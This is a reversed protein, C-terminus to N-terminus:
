AIILVVNALGPGIAAALAIALVVYPFALIVDMTRMLAEDVPGGYYGAILGLSTGVISATGVSALAVILSLQIGMALRTAVDRGFQDTGMLSGMGATALKRDPDVANPDIGSLLPMLVAFVLLAVLMLPGIWGATSRRRPAKRFDRM